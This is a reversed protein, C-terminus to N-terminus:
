PVWSVMAMSYPTTRIIGSLRDAFISDYLVGDAFKRYHWITDSQVQLGEFCWARYPM